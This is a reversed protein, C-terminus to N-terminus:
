FRGKQKEIMEKIEQLDPRLDYTLGKARAEKLEEIQKLLSSKANRYSYNVDSSEGEVREPLARIQSELEDINIEPSELAKEYLPLVRELFLRRGRRDDTVLAIAKPEGESTGDEFVVATVSIPEQPRTDLTSVEAEAIDGPAIAQSRSTAVGAENNFAITYGVIPKSSVNKLRLLFIDRISDVSSCLYFYRCRVAVEKTFSQARGYFGGHLTLSGNATM